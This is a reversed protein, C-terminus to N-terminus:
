SDQVNGTIPISHNLVTELKRKYTDFELREHSTCMANPSVYKVDYAYLSDRPHLREIWAANKNNSGILLTPHCTELEHVLDPVAGETLCVAEFRGKMKEMTDRLRGIEDRVEQDADLLIYKIHLGKGVWDSLERHWRKKKKKVVYRGDSGFIWLQSDEFPVSEVLGRILPTFDTAASVRQIYIPSPGNSPRRAKELHRTVVIAVYGVGLSLWGVMFSAIWWLVMEEVDLEAEGDFDRKWPRWLRPPEPAEDEDEM